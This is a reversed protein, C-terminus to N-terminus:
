QTYMASPTVGFKKKFARRFSTQNNYGVEFAIESLNSNGEQILRAAENLRIDELYVSFNINMTEKFLHSFYSESIKFEDSIKNLCLAPDKYNERIYAVITDILSNKESKTTCIDCLKLAIDQCLRFTLDESALLTDIEELLATDEESLSNGSSNIAFRAKLLTNRIDSLLFRLLHFPLTREEINEQHILTFLEMVQSRNGTSIFQIMKSSFEVPYYYVHSDKKLMEYPLFIYNKTTYGSADKAQQYSEWINTFSCVLGIGTFFWISYEELLKDHLKLVKEQLSLLTKDADNDAFPILMAYVREKPCFLYLMNQYSFYETLNQKILEDLDETIKPQVEPTESFENDYVVGYMVYYRLEPSELHLFSKIYELEEASTVTGHMLSKLYTNSIIPRTAEVVEQLQDRDTITEQLASDLQIIPRMNNRVLICVYILGFVTAAFLALYFLWQYNSPCLSEPQLLYFTWGNTDSDARSVHMSTDRFEMTYYGKKDSLSSLAQPFENYLDDETIGEGVFLVPNGAKDLAIVCGNDNLSVGGFIEKLHRASIDFGATVALDKYTLTDVDILYLYADDSSSNSIYDTMPYLTGSGNDAYILDHWSDLNQAFPNYNRIYYLYESNFTNVGIVYGTNRLYLYCSNVPLDNYSYMYSSLSRKISLGTLYFDNAETSEMRSLRYFGSDQALQRCISDMTSFNSDLLLVASQFTSENQNWFEENSRRTSVQHLYVTLILIVFLFISYSIAFRITLFTHRDNKAINESLSTLNIKM